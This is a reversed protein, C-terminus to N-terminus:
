ATVEEEEKKEPKFVSNWEEEKQSVTAQVKQVEERTDQDKKFREANFTVGDKSTIKYYLKRKTAGDRNKIFEIFPEDQKDYTFLMMADTMFKRKSSGAYDGGKTFHETCLFATYIDLANKGLRIENMLALLWSEARTSKMGGEEAGVILDVTYQFSDLLVIDWGQKLVSELAQAPNNYEGLLLIEVDNFKIRKSYKYLHISNMESSVFLMRKKPNAKKVKGMHDLLVTTKGAGSEGPAMTITAPLVGGMESTLIDLPTNAKLPTLISDPFHIQDINTLSVKQPVVLSVTSQLIQKPAKSDGVEENFVFNFRAQSVDVNKFKKNFAAFALKKDVFSNENLFDKILAGKTKKM